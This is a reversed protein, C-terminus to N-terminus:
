RSTSYDIPLSLVSKLDKIALLNEKEIWGEFGLLSKVIYYENYEGKITLTTGRDVLIIPKSEKSPTMLLTNGEGISVGLNRNLLFYQMFFLFCICVGCIVVFAHLVIIIQKQHILVYLLFLVSSLLLIIFSFFFFHDSKLPLPLAHQYKLDYEDNLTEMWKRYTLLSPKCSIAYLCHYVALERQELYWYVISLNYHLASNNPEIELAEKFNEAAEHFDKTEYAFIAEQCLTDFDNKSSMLSFALIFIMLLSSSRMARRKKKVIMLIIGLFYILVIPIFFVYNGLQKSIPSITDKKIKEIDILELAKVDRNVSVVEYKPMVTVSIIAGRARMVKNASINYWYFDPIRIKYEGSQSPQIDWSFNVIGEYGQSSAIYHQKIKENILEIKDGYPEIYFPLNLNGCGTILISLTTKENQFFKQKSVEYRYEINNGVVLPLQEQDEIASLPEIDIKLAPFKGDRSEGYVSGSPLSIQGAKTSTILFHAVDFTYLQNGALESAKVICADRYQTLEITKDNFFPTNDFEIKDVKFQDANHNCIKISACFAERQRILVRQVSWEFEIPVLVKKNHLQGIEIMKLDSKYDQEATHINFGGFLFRGSKQARYRMRVIYSNQQEGYRSAKPWEALTAFDFENLGNIRFEDINETTIKFSVGFTKGEQIIASGTDINTFLENTAQAFLFNEMLFFILVLLPPMFRKCM